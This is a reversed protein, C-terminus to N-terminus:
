SGVFETGTYFHLVPIGFSERARHAWDRHFTDELMQPKTVVILETASTAAITRAVDPLPDDETVRGRAELGVGRLVTISDQVARAAESRAEEPSPRGRGVVDDWVARLDLLGLHDIIAAVVNQETDAPVLVEVRVDREPHLSGIHAADSPRLAEETLVVVTETM